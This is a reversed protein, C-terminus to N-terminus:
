LFQFGFTKKRVSRPMTNAWYRVNAFLLLQSSLSKRDLFCPCHVSACTRLKSTISLSRLVTQARICVFVNVEYFYSRVVEIHVFQLSCCYYFRRVRDRYSRLATTRRGPAHVLKVSDHDHGFPTLDFKAWERRLEDLEASEKLRLEHRYQEELERKQQEGVAAFQERLEAKEIEHQHQLSHLRSEAQARGRLLDQCRVKYGDRARKCQLALQSGPSLMLLFYGFFLVLDTM